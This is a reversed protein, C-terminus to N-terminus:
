AALEQKRATFRAALDDTWCDSARAQGYLELLEDVHTAQTALKTFHKILEDRQTDDDVSDILRKGWKNRWEYCTHADVMGGAAQRLDIWHISGTGEGSPTHLVAAWDPSPADHGWPEDAKVIPNYPIATAYIYGQCGFKAGAFDMSSSTKQDVIIVTGAPIIVPPRAPLYTNTRKNSYKRKGRRAVFPRRTRCVRDLKGGAKFEHNVVIREISLVEFDVILRQWAQVTSWWEDPVHGLSVGRDFRECIDHIATGIAAKDNAGALKMAEECLADMEKKAASAEKDAGADEADQLRAMERSYRLRLTGKDLVFGEAVKRLQWADLFTSSELPAGFSSARRYGLDEGEPTRVLPRGWDDRSAEWAADRAYRDAAGPDEEATIKYASKPPLLPIDPKASVALFDATTTATM